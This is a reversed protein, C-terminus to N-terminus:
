DKIWDDYDEMKVLDKEGHKNLIVKYKACGTQNYSIYSIVDGVQIAPNEKLENYISSGEWVTYTKM